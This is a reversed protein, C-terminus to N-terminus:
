RGCTRAPWPWLAPTRRTWGAPSICSPRNAAGSPGTVVVFEGADLTFDFDVLAHVEEDGRRYKKVVGELQLVPTMADGRYGRRGAPGPDAFQHGNRISQVIPLGILM